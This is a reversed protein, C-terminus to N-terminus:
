GTLDEDLARLTDPHLLKRLQRKAYYLRSKVTGISTNMVEAIEAYSLGEEAYLILTQRQLEPLQDMAEQVEMHLMLWHAVDEPRSRADYNILSIWEVM